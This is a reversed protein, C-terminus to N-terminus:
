AKWRAFDIRKSKLAEKSVQCGKDAHWILIEHYMQDELDHAREDDNRYAEIDKLKAKILEVEM